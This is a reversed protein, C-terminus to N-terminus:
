LRFFRKLQNDIVMSNLTFLMEYIKADKTEQYQHIGKAPWIPCWCEDSTSASYLHQHQKTGKANLGVKSATDMM